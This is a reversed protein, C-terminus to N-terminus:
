EKGSLAEEAQPEEADGKAEGKANGGERKKEDPDAPGQVAARSFKVRVGDAIQLTVVDGHIQSITAYMGTTTMIRDGKKLTEMLNEREKRKKREPAILVFWFIAGIMALLLLQNGGQAEEGAPGEEAFLTLVFLNLTNLIM